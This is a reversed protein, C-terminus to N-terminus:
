FNVAEIKEALLHLTAEEAVGANKCVHLFGHPDPEFSAIFRNDKFVEFKCRNDHDHAYDRVEYEATQGGEELKICFKDM